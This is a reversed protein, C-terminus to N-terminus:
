ARLRDIRHALQVDRATLGGVDHSWTVIKVRGWGLHIDPHHGLEEAIAGVENTFALAQAFDPFAVEKELHHGDVLRWDRLDELDARTKMYSAFQEPSVRHRFAEVGNVYIVPVDNTFRERLAPDADIDVERVRVPLRHLAAAARVSAKANDCLACPHRTYLTVEITEAM